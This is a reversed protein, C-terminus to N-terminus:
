WGTDCVVFLSSEVIEKFLTVLSPDNEVAPFYFGYATALHLQGITIHQDFIPLQKQNAAQYLWQFRCRGMDVWICCAGFLQQHMLVLDSAKDALNLLFAVGQHGQVQVPFITQHFAFNCQGFALCLVVFAVRDFIALALAFYFTGHLASVTLQAAVMWGVAPM